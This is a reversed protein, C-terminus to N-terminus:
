GPTSTCLCIISIYEYLQTFLHLSSETGGCIGSPGLLSSYSRILFIDRRVSLSFSTERIVLPQAVVYEAAWNGEELM